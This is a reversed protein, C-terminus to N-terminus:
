LVPDLFAFESHGILKTVQDSLSVRLHSETNVLLRTRRVLDDLTQDFSTLKILNTWVALLLTVVWVPDANQSLNHRHVGLSSNIESLHDGVSVLSLGLSVDLL